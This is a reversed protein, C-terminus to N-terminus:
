GLAEIREAWGLWGETALAFMISGCVTLLFFSYM